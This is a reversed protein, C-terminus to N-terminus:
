ADLGAPDIGSRSFSQGETERPSIARARWFGAFRRPEVSHKVSWGDGLLTCVNVVKAAAAFRRGCLEFFASDHHGDIRIAQLHGAV